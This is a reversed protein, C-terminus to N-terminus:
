PLSTTLDDGSLTWSVMLEKTHTVLIMVNINFYKYGETLGAESSSLCRARLLSSLRAKQPASRRIVTAKSQHQAFDFQNEKPLSPAVGVISLSPRCPPQLKSPSFSFGTSLFLLPISLPQQSLQAQRPPLHIIFDAM